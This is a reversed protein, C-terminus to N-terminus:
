KEVEPYYKLITKLVDIFKHVEVYLQTKQEELRDRILMEYLKAQQQGFLKGEWVSIDKKIYAGIRFEHTGTRLKVEKGNDLKKKSDAGDAALHCDIIFTSYDDEKKVGQWLLEMRNGGNPFDIVGYSLEKWQYGHHNLWFFVEKYLHDFYTTTKIKIKYGYEVLTVGEEVSTIKEAMV